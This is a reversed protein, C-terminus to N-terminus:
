SGRLGWRVGGWRKLNQEDPFVAEALVVRTNPLVLSSKVKNRGSNQETVKYINNEIDLGWKRM